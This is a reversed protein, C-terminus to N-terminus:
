QVSGHPLDIGQTDPAIWGAIIRYGKAEDGAGILIHGDHSLWAHAAFKGNRLGVGIKLESPKQNESLLHQLALARMLCTMGPIAKSALEVAVVLRRTDIAGRGPRTAWAQLKPVDHYMLRVKSAFLVAAAKLILAREAPSLSAFKALYRM